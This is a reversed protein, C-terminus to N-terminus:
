PPFTAEAEVGGVESAPLGPVTALWAVTSLGPLTASLVSLAPLLGGAPGPQVKGGLRERQIGIFIFFFEQALGISTGERRPERCDGEGRKEVM